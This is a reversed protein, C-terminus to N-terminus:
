NQPNLRDQVIERLRAGTTVPTDGAIQELRSTDKQQFYNTGVWYHDHVMGLGIADARGQWEGALREAMNLDNDTGIRAIDFSHGLFKTKLNWDLSAPGLSVSVVSKM